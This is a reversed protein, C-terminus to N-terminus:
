NSWDRNAESDNKGTWLPLEAKTHTPVGSFHDMGTAQLVKGILSTQYFQFGGDDLTKIDIELFEYVSEGKSHEWNYSTGDEKFYKVINDINSQSHAWFLCYDGYLM